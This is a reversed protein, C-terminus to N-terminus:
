FWGRPFFLPGTDTEALPRAVPRPPSCRVTRVVRYRASRNMGDATRRIRPEARQRSSLPLSLIPPLPGVRGSCYFRRGPAPGSAGGSHLELGWCDLPRSSMTLARAAAQNAFPTLVGAVKNGGGVVDSPLGVEAISTSSVEETLLAGVDVLGAFIAPGPRSRATQRSPAEGRRHVGGGPAMREGPAAADGNWPSIPGIGM